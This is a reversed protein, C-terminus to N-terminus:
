NFEVVIDTKNEKAKDRVTTEPPSPHECKETQKDLINTRYGYTITKITSRPINYLDFQSRFQIEEGDWGNHSTGMTANYAFVKQM